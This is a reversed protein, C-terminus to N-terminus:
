LYIEGSDALLATVSSISSFSSSMFYKLRKKKKKANRGKVLEVFVMSLSQWLIYM